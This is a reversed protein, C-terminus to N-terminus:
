KKIYERRKLDMFDFEGQGASLLFPMGIAQSLTMDMGRKLCM